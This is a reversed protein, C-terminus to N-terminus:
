QKQSSSTWDYAGWFRLRKMKGNLQLDPNSILWKKEKDVKKKPTVYLRKFKDTFESKFVQVTHKLERAEFGVM